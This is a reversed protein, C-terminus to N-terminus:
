SVYMVKLTSLSTLCTGVGILRHSCLVFTGDILGRLDLTCGLGMGRSGERHGNRGEVWPMNVVM